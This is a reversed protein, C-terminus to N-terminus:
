KEFEYMLQQKANEIKRNKEEKDFLKQKLNDKEKELMNFTNSTM